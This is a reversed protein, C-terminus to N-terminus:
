EPEHTAEHLTSLGMKASIEPFGQKKVDDVIADLLKRLRDANSPTAGPALLAFQNGGLHYPMDSSRFSSRAVNAFECLLAHYAEEGRETLVEDAGELDILAISLDILRGENFVRAFQASDREFAARTGLGTLSDAFADKNYDASSPQASLDREALLINHFERETSLQRFAFYILQFMSFSIIAGVLLLTFIQPLWTSLQIAEQTGPLNTDVLLALGMMWFFACVLATWAILRPIFHLSHLALLAFYYLFLHGPQINHAMEYPHYLLMLTVVGADLIVLLYPHWSQQKEHQFLWWYGVGVGAFLVLISFHYFFDSYSPTHFVIWLLVLLVFLSRAILAQRMGNSHLEAFVDGLSYPQEDTFINM